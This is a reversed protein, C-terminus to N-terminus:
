ERQQQQQQEGVISGETPDSTYSNEVVVLQEEPDILHVTVIPVGTYGRIRCGVMVFRRVTGAILHPFVGEGVLKVRYFEISTDQDALELEFYGAITPQWDYHINIFEVADLRAPIRYPKL